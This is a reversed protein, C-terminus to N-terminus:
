DRGDKERKQMAGDMTQCHGFYDCEGNRDGWYPCTRFDERYSMKYGMGDAGIRRFIFIVRFAM